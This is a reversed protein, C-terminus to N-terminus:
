FLEDLAKDWEDFFGKPWFSLRGDDLIKPTIIEHVFSDQNKSNKSFFLLSVDDPAIVKNKAALRVGNLVHDSHTEAIVQVGGASVKAILEGIKRQGSPHLHAEPNELIVLDGPVAKLLAVIVPLIYSIGFGVNHPRYENSTENEHLRFMIGLTDVNSYSDVKIRLGPSIESLWQQSQYLLSRSESNEHMASKNLVRVNEGNEFLYHITYEGNIGLNSKQYLSNAYAKDHRTRPGIREASIYEFSKKFLNVGLLREAETVNMGSSQKLPLFDGDSRFEFDWRLTLDQADIGILIGQAPDTNHNLLDRGTGIKVYDGNLSIGKNIMGQEFSQRLLLLSQIASSKGMSNVGALLNLHSLQIDATEFCKFNKLLLNRIIM